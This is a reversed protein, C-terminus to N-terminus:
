KPPPGYLTERFNAYGTVGGVHWTFRRLCEGEPDVEHWEGAASYVVLTNDNPLRQVDGQYHSIPGGDYQWVLEANAASEDLEYALALSHNTWVNGANNFLLIMDGMVHHGHQIRWPDCDFDSEEGGFVWRLEGQSGVKLISNFELVSLYYSDDTEDHSIANSHCWEHDLARHDFDTRLSYVERREGSENLEVIRDCLGDGTEDYEIFAVANGPLVTFDHHLKPLDLTTEEYGDMRVKLLAGSDDNEVNNAGVLMHKGDYSMRARTAEFIDTEYWWVYDGDGDVIFATSDNVFNSVIFGPMLGAAEDPTVSLTPLGNMVPGTDVTCDESRYTVGDAVATIRFHYTKSPKMGILLTRFAPETLDVPAAMGYDTDLGFAITAADIGEIDASWTVIGVTPIVESVSVDVTFEADGLVIDSDSDGNGPHPEGDGAGTACGMLPLSSGIILYWYGVVTKWYM